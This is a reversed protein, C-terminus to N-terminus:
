NFKMNGMDFHSHEILDILLLEIRTLREEITLKKFSELQIRKHEENIKITCDPCIQENHYSM